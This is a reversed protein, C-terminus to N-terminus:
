TIYRANSVAVYDTIYMTSCARGKTKNTPVETWMIDGPKACKTKEFKNGVKSRELTEAPLCDNSLKRASTVAGDQVSM